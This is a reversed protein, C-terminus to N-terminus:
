ASNGLQLRSCSWDQAGRGKYRQKSYVALDIVLYDISAISSVTRLTLLPKLLRKWKSSQKRYIDYSKRM